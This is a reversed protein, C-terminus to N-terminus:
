RTASLRDESRGELVLLDDNMPTDQLGARAKPHVMQRHVYKGVVENDDTPMQFNSEDSKKIARKVSHQTSGNFEIKLSEKEGLRDSPRAGPGQATQATSNAIQNANATTKVPATAVHATSTQVGHQSNAFYWGIGLLAVVAIAVIVFAKM